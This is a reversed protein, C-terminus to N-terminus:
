LHIGEQEFSWEITGALKKFDKDLILTVSLTLSNERKDTAVVEIMDANVFPEYEIIAAIIAEKAKVVRQEVNYQLLIDPFTCGFEPFMFEENKYSKLLVSIRNVISEYDEKLSMKGTTVDFLNPFAFSNTFM